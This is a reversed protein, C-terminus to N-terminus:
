LGARLETEARHWNESESAGKGSAWIEFARVAIQERTIEKKAVPTMVKPIASNRVPTVTTKEVVKVAKPAAKSASSVTSPSKKAAM